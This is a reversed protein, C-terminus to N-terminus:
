LWGKMYVCDHNAVWDNMKEVAYEDLKFSGSM